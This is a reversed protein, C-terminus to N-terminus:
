TNTRETTRDTVTCTLELVQVAYLFVTPFRWQETVKLVENPLEDTPM